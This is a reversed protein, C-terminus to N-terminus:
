VPLANCNTLIPYLASAEKYCIFYVSVKIEIKWKVQLAFIKMLNKVM